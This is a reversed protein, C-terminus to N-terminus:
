NAKERKDRKKWNPDDTIVLVKQNADDDDVNSSSFPNADLGSVGYKELNFLTEQRVGADRDELGKHTFYGAIGGIAGMVLASTLAAQGRDQRDLIAGGAAGVAAGTGFGLLTSRTATACGNLLMGIILCYCVLDNQRISGGDINITIVHILNNLKSRLSWVRRSM